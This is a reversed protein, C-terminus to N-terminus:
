KKVVLGRRLGEEILRRTLRSPTLKLVAARKTVEQHLEVSGGFAMTRAGGRSAKGKSRKTEIRKSKKM